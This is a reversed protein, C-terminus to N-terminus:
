RRQDGTIERRREQSIPNWIKKARFEFNVLWSNKSEGALNKM